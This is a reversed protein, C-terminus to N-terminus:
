GLSDIIWRVLDAIRKGLLPPVAEGIQARIGTGNGSFLYDDTFTQIRARERLTLQARSREYHYGYTGGGGYAMVTWAPKLPSSRRYIFSINKGEVAWPTDDVFAYNEDPPIRFMRDLVRQTQKPVSNSGDVSKQEAVPKGLWGFEQLLKEHEKMARDFEEEDCQTSYDMQNFWHYDQIVNFSLNNWVKQRWEEATPLTGDTGLDSYEQMVDKYQEQLDTLVKGEFIEICTMPYKVFLMSNGNLASYLRDGVAKQSPKGETFLDRRIGIIILRTRTQPVGLKTGDVLGSFAIHYGKVAEQPIAVGNQQAISAQRVEELNRLDSLVTDYALGQNASMLGPVNEFVFVKPQLFMVARVFEVYLKGKGGDLGQRQQGQAMSFDQCPPGGILVDPHLDVISFDIEKINGQVVSPTHNVSDTIPPEVITLDLNKALTQAADALLECAFLTKFEALHFGWDFGGAGSFLSVATLKTDAM